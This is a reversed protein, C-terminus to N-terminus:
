YADFSGTYGVYQTPPTQLGGQGGGGGGGQGGQGGQGQLGASLLESLPEAGAALGTVGTGPAIEVGAGSLSLVLVVPSAGFGAM